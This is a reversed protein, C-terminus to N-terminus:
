SVRADFLCVSWSTNLWGVILVFLCGCCGRVFGSRLRSGVGIGVRSGWWESGWLRVVGILTCIFMAHSLIAVSVDLIARSAASGGVWCLMSVGGYLPKCVISQIPVVQIM